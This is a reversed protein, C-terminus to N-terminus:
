IYSYIHRYTHTYLAYINGLSIIGISHDESQFTSIKIYIDGCFILQSILKVGIWHGGGYKLCQDPNQSQCHALFCPGQRWPNWMRNLFCDCLSLLEIFTYRQQILHDQCTCYMSMFILPMPSFFSFNSILPWPLLLFVLSWVRQTKSITMQIECNWQNQQNMDKIKGM